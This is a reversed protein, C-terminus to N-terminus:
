NVVLKQGISITNSSLGNAQKIYDVSKGYMKSLRYLTQGKEVTHYRTAVQQTPPTSITPAYTSTNTTTAITTTSGYTNTTREAATSTTANSTPSTSNAYQTNTKPSEVTTTEKAPYTSAKDTSIRTNHNIGPRTVIEPTTTNGEPKFKVNSSAADTNYNESQAPASYVSTAEKSDELYSSTSTRSQEVRRNPTPMEKQTHTPSRQERRENNRKEEAISPPLEFDSLATSFKHKTKKSEKSSNGATSVRNTAIRSNAAVKRGKIKLIAGPMPEEDASLRNRSILKDLRIGYQQSIHAMTEGERVKHFKKRGRYSSRKPQLYVKTNTPIVESPDTLADNYKLIRKLSVDTKAAVIEPTEDAETVVIDVDNVKGLKIVKQVKQKKEQRALEEFFADEETSALMDDDPYPRFLDDYKFLSYDEVIKILLSPYKPNTAYGAKKLGHAWGKYDDHALEFLFGYRQNNRLFESHAIFSSEPNKYMRFCSEIDNGKKDKEDDVRYFTRDNWDGGCKIGFHNNAKRSLVSKGGNSELIAQALKISAPVGTREMEDQAIKSYKEIYYLRDQAMQGYTMNIALLALIATYMNKRIM